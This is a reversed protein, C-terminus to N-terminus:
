EKRRRKPQYNKLSSKDILWLRNTVKRGRLVGQALLRDVHVRSIGLANAAETAVIYENETTTDKRKTMTRRLVTYWWEGGKDLGEWGRLRM